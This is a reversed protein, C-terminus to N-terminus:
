GGMGMIEMAEEASTLTKFEYRFGPIQRYEHALKGARIMAEEMKGKNVDIITFVEVGDKSGRGSGPLITKGINEDPPFKAM